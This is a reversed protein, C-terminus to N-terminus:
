AEEHQKCDSVLGYYKMSLGYPPSITHPKKVKLAKFAQCLRGVARGFANSLFGWPPAPGLLQLHTMYTNYEYSRHM